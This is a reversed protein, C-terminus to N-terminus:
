TPAALDVEQAILGGNGHIAFTQECSLVAGVPARL